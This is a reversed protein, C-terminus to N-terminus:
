QKDEERQASLEPLQEAPETGTEDRPDRSERFARPLMVASAAFFCLAGIFTGWNALGADALAGSPLVVAGIASLGFAICGLMNIWSSAWDASAPGWLQGSRVLVLLAFGGSILFAASGEANPAWVLHIEDAVNSVRLAEGTSLNFLLTGVFQTAAALWVARLARRANRAPESLLLQVFAASTFFWSGIFFLRNCLNAGLADSLVPSSGIAFFSSGIMFGIAQIKLTPRIAVQSARM